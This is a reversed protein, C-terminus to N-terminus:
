SAVESGGLGIAGGVVLPVTVTAGGFMALVHQLGFVLAKVPEVREEIGVKLVQSEVAEMREM